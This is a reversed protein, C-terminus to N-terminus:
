EREAVDGLLGNEIEDVLYHGVLNGQETGVSPVAVVFQALILRVPSDIVAM